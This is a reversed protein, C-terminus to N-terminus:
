NGTILKCDYSGLYFIGLGWIGSVPHWIGSVLHRICNAFPVSCYPLSPHPTLNAISHQYSVAWFSTSTFRLVKLAQERIVIESYRNV